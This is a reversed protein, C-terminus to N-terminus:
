LNAYMKVELERMLGELEIYRSVSPQLKKYEDSYEEYKQLLETSVRSFGAIAAADVAANQPPHSPTARSFISRSLASPRVPPRGATVPAAAQLTSVVSSSRTYGRRNKSRPTEPATHVSPPPPPPDIASTAAPPPETAAVVSKDEEMCWQRQLDAHAIANRTPTLAGPDTPLTFNTISTINAAPLSSSSSASSSSPAGIHRPSDRINDLQGRAVAFWGSEDETWSRKQRIALLERAYADKIPIATFDLRVMPNANAADSATQSDAPVTFFRENERRTKDLWATEEATLPPVRQSLLKGAHILHRIEADCLPM